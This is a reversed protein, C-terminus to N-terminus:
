QISIWRGLPPTSKNKLYCDMLKIFNDKKFKANRIDKERLQIVHDRLFEYDWGELNEKLEDIMIRFVKITSSISCDPTSLYNSM